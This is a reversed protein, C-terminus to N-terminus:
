PTGATEEPPAEYTAAAANLDSWSQRLRIRALALNADAEIFDRQAQNLRTLTEKGAVYAAQILRRNERATELRERQLRIQQQADTVDIVSRRVESQVALRLRNLAAAAEARASEAARVKARRAGGTYLEWRVDIAGASSQDQVTYRLTSSRDFGWSGSL